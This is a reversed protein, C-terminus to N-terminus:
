DEVPLTTSIKTCSTHDVQNTEWEYENPANWKATKYEVVLKNRDYLNIRIVKCVDIKVSRRKWDAPKAVVDQLPVSGDENEVSANYWETRGAETCIVMDDVKFDIEPRYGNLANYIYSLGGNAEANGVIVHAVIDKHKYDPPLTDLMKNYIDAIPVDITIVKDFAPLGNEM